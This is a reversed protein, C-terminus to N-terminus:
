RTANTSCSPKATGNPPEFARVLLGAQYAAIQALLRDSASFPEGPRMLELSALVHNEALAPVFLVGGAGSREALRRMPASLRGLETQEEVGIEDLRLCSGELEAGLAASTSWVGRAPLGGSRDPVRVVALTAGTGAAAARALAGLAEDLSTADTLERAAAAFSELHGTASETM